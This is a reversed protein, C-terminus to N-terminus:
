PEAKAYDGLEGYVMGLLVHGSPDDPQQRVYDSAPALAEAFADVNILSKVEAALPVSNTPEQQVVLRYQDAANHFLKENAYINALTFHASTMGPHKGLLETFLRIADAVTAGEVPPLGDDQRAKASKYSATALSLQLDAADPQIKVAQRWYDM